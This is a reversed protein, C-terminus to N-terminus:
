AKVFTAYEVTKQPTNYNITVEVKSISTADDTGASGSYPCTIAVTITVASLDTIDVSENNVPTSASCPSTAETSYRRLYDYAVNSARAEARTQGGDKIVVSYLQFGAIFFAAAVFLTILLEVASFGSQSNNKKM